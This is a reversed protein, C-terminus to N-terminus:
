RVPDNPYHLLTQWNSNRQTELGAFQMNIYGFDGQLQSYINAWNNRYYLEVAGLTRHASIRTNLTLLRELFDIRYVASWMPIAYYDGDMSHADYATRWLTYDDYRAPYLTLGAYRITDAEIQLFTRNGLEPSCYRSLIPIGTTRIMVLEPHHEFAHVACDLINQLIPLYCNDDLHLFVLDHGMRRAERIAKLTASMNDRGYRRILLINPANYVQKAYRMANLRPLRHIIRGKLRPIDDVVIHTYTFGVADQLMQLSQAASEAMKVSTLYSPTVLALKM